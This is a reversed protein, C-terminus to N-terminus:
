IYTSVCVCVCVYICTYIHIYIVQDLEPDMAAKLYMFMDTLSMIAAKSLQSRLNEVVQNFTHTHTHIYAYCTQPLCSRRRASSRACIKWWRTSHIHTHIYTQTIHRHSVHDGGQQTTFAPERGGPRIYARIYTHVYTHMYTDLFCQRVIPHLQLVTASAHYISLQMFM